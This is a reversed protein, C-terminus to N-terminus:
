GVIEPERVWARYLGVIERWREGAANAKDLDARSNVGCLFRVAEAADDNNTVPRSWARGGGIRDADTRVGEHLFRQFAADNCLVGAQQSLKM